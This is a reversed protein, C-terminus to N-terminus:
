LQTDFALSGWFLAIVVAALHRAVACRRCAGHLVLLLLAAPVGAFATLVIAQFTRLLSPGVLWGELPLSFLPVWRFVVFLVAAALIEAIPRHAARIRSGLSQEGRSLRKPAAKDVAKRRRWGASLGRAWPLLLRPRPAAPTSRGPPTAPKPEASGEGMVEARTVLAASSNPDPQVDM